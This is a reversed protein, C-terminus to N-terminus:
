AALRWISNDAQVVERDRREALLESTHRPSLQAQQAIQGRLLGDPNAALVARIRGWGDTPAPTTDEDAPAPGVLSLGTPRELARALIQQTETNLDPHVTDRALWEEVEGFPCAEEYTLGQEDIAKRVDLANPVWLVRGPQVQQTGLVSGMIAFWGPDPPLTTPDFPFGQLGANKSQVDTAPGMGLWGNDLMNSRILTTGYGSKDGMGKQKATVVGMGVSRFTATIEELAEVARSGCHKLVRPLEDVGLMLRPEGPRLVFSDEGRDGALQVRHRGIQLYADLLPWWEDPHRALTHAGGALYGIGGGRKGCIGFWEMTPCLSAEAAVLRLLSGKGSGPPGVLSIFVGGLPSWLRGYMPVGGKAYLTTFRGDRQLTPGDWYRMRGGEGPTSFAVRVCRVSLRPDAAITVTGHPQHLAWEAEEDLLAADSAKTTALELVGTGADEDFEVFEGDLRPEHVAVEERWRWLMIPEDTDRISRGRWWPVAATLVVGALLAGTPRWGLGPVDIVFAIGACARGLLARERASLLKRRGAAWARAPTFVVLVALTAWAWAMSDAPATILAVTLLWAPAFTHRHRGVVTCIWLTQAAAWVVLVAAKLLWLALLLPSFMVLLFRLLAGLGSRRAM